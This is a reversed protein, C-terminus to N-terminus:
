QVAPHSVDWPDFTLQRVNTGDRHMVFLQRGGARDSVFVIYRGDESMAPSGDHGERDTLRTETMTALDRLYIESAGHRTSAYVCWRNQGDVSPEHCQTPKGEEHGAIREAKADSYRYRWVETNLSGELTCYVWTGDADVAPAREVGTSNTLRRQEVFPRRYAVLDIAEHPPGVKPQYYRKSTFAILQNDRSIAPDYEDALENKTVALEQGAPGPRYYIKTIIGWVPSIVRTYYIDGNRAITPNAAPESTVPKPSPNDLTLTYIYPKGDGNVDAEYVVRYGGAAPAAPTAATQTAPAGSVASCLLLLLAGAAPGLRSPRM